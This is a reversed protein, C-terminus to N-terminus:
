HFLKKEAIRGATFGLGAGVAGGVIAGVPGGVFFGILAGLLGGLLGGAPKLLRGIRPTRAPKTQMRLIDDMDNTSPLPVPKVILGAESGPKATSPPLNTRAAGSGGPVVVVSGDPTRGSTGGGDLVQGGEGGAAVTHDLQDRAGASPDTVTSAPTEVPSTAPKAPADSSGNAPKPASAVGNAPKPVPKPAPHAAAQRADEDAKRIAAFEARAAAADRKADQALTTAAYLSMYERYKNLIGAVIKKTIFSLEGDEQLVRDVKALYGILDNRDGEAMTPLRAKVYARQEPTMLDTARSYRGDLDPNGIHADSEAFAEIKARWVGLFPHLNPFYDKGGRMEKKLALPADADFEASLDAHTLLAELLAKEDDGLYAQVAKVRAPDAAQASRAALLAPVLLAALVLRKRM